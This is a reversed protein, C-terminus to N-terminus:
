VQCRVAPCQFGWRPGNKAVSADIIRLKEMNRSGSFIISKLIRTTILNGDPFVYTKGKESSEAETKLETALMLM